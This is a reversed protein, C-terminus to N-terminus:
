RRQLLEVFGGLSQRFLKGKATAQKNRYSFGLLLKQLKDVSMCISGGAHARQFAAAKNRQDAFLPKRRLLLM